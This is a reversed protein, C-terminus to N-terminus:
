MKTSYLNFERERDEEEGGENKNKVEESNIELSKNEATFKEERERKETTFNHTHSLFFVTTHIPAATYNTSWAHIISLFSFIWRLTIRESRNFRRLAIAKRYWKRCPIEYSMIHRNHARQEVRCVSYCFISFFTSWAWSPKDPLADIM